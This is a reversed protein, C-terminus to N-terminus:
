VCTHGLRSVFVAEFAKTGDSHSSVYMEVLIDVIKVAHLVYTLKTHIVLVDTQFHFVEHM